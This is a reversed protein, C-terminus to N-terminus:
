LPPDFAAAPRSSMGRGANLPLRGPNAQALALPARREGVPLPGGFGRNSWQEFIASSARTFSLRDLARLRPALLLGGLRNSGRVRSRSTSQSGSCSGAGVVWNKRSWEWLMMVYLSLGSMGKLAPM